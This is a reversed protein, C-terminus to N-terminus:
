WGRAVWADLDAHEAAITTTAGHGPRAVSDGPLTFLRDQISELIQPFSSYEWRTAGPGGRFLTDGSFVTGLAPAAFSVSGPTHGPTHLTALEVGAVLFTAGHALEIDPLRDGHTESWIFLDAPHLHLLADLASSLAVAANVHDQHGHTLLIGLTERDGVATAIADADHSADIVVVQEDDGVIWVNNEISVPEPEPGGRDVLLTGETVVLEIRADSM